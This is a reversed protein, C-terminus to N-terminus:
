PVSERADPYSELFQRQYNQKDAPPALAPGVRWDTGRALNMYFLLRIEHGANDKLPKTVVLAITKDVLLKEIAPEASKEWSERLVLWKDVSGVNDRVKELEARDGSQLHKLFAQATELATLPKPETAGALKLLDRHYTLGRDRVEERQMNRLVAEVVRPDIPGTLENRHDLYARIMGMSRSGERSNDADIISVITPVAPEGLAILGIRAPETSETMEALLEIANDGALVPLALAVTTRLNGDRDNRLRAIAPAHADRRLLVMLDVATRLEDAERTYWQDLSLAFLDHYREFNLDLGPSRRGPRALSSEIADHLERVAQHQEDPLYTLRYYLDEQRILDYFFQQLAAYPAPRNGELVITRTKGGRTVAFTM